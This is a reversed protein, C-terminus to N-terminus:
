PQLRMRQWSGDDFREFALRDHLRNARGQWFEARVPRIIIGGWHEPRPVDMDKFREAWRLFREDMADRGETIRSQDSSWAAIRSERPRGAFYADSEAESSRGAKGEFRVQRQMRPWFFTIAARPDRELDMAKRSNYNTHFVLGEDSFARMLVVRNSISAAGVTALLMANHDPEAGAEAEALWKGFLEMPDEGTAQETLESRDYDTRVDVNREGEM